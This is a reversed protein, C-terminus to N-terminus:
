NRELLRRILPNDSSAALQMLVRRYRSMVHGPALSSPGPGPGVPVGSTLPRGSVAPQGLTHKPLTRIFDALDVQQRRRLDGGSHRMPDIERTLPPRPGSTRTADIEQRRRPPEPDSQRTTDVPRPDQHQRQPAPMNRQMGQQAVGEGYRQGPVSKIQQAADGSLTKRKRPM